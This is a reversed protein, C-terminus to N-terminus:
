AVQDIRVPRRRGMSASAGASVATRLAVGAPLGEQGMVRGATSEPATAYADARTNTASRAPSTAPRARRLLARVRAEFEVLDFPKTVYDDAGLDLGRAKDVASDHASLILVPVDSSERLRRLAEWGSLDPLVIDLIVLDPPLTAALLELGAAASTATEVALGDKALSLRVITLLTEDDDVVLVRYSRPPLMCAGRNSGPEAPLAYRTRRTGNLAPRAHM